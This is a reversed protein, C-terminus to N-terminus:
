TRSKSFDLNSKLSSNSTTAKTLLPQAVNPIDFCHLSQSCVLAQGNIQPTFGDSIAAWNDPHCEIQTASMLRFPFGGRKVVTGAPLTFTELKDM